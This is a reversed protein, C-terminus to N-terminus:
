RFEHSNVQGGGRVDECKGDLAPDVYREFWGALKQQMQAIRQQQAPNLKDWIPFYKALEM